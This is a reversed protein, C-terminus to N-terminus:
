ILVSLGLYVSVVSGAATFTVVVRYKRRTSLLSGDLRVVRGSSVAGVVSHALQPATRGYGSKSSLASFTLEQSSRM